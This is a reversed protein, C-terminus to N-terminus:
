ISLSSFLLLVLVVNVGDIGIIGIDIVGFVDGVYVVDVGVEYVGVCVVDHVVIVVVGVVVVVCVWVCCDVVVICVIDVVCVVDGGSCVDTGDPDSACGVVGDCIFIIINVVIGRTVVVDVCV